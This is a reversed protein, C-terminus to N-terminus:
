ISRYIVQGLSQEVSICRSAIFRLDFDRITKKERIWFDNNQNDMMINSYFTNVLLIVRM